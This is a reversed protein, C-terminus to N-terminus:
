SQYGSELMGKEDVKKRVNRELRLNIAEDFKNKKRPLFINSNNQYIYNYIKISDKTSFGISYLEKTKSKIKKVKNTHCICYIVNLVGDIMDESGSFFRTRIQATKTTVGKSNSPYQIGVSGNGDFYGRIFDHLYEDPIFNPFKKTLSKNEYVGLKILDEIMEKSSITLNAYEYVKDIGKIKAQEIKVEGDYDLEEKINELLTLDDTSIRIRLKWGHINGDAYIFGLIYAMNNSWKKFYDFNGYHKRGTFGLQLVVKLKITSLWMLHLEGCCKTM